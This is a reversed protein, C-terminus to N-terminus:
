ETGISQFKTVFNSLNNNMCVIYFEGCFLLWLVTMIRFKRDFQGLHVLLRDEKVQLGMGHHNTDWSHFKSSKTVMKHLHLWKQGVNTAEKIFQACEASSLWNSVYFAGNIGPVRHDELNIQKVEVFSFEEEETFEMLKRLYNQNSWKGIIIIYYKFSNKRNLNSSFWKNTLTVAVGIKILFKLKMPKNQVQYTVCVFVWKTWENLIIWWSKSM